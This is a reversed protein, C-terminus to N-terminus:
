SLAHNIIFWIFKNLFKKLWKRRSILYALFFRYFTIIKDKITNIQQMVFTMFYIQFTASWIRRISFFAFFCCYIRDIIILAKWYAAIPGNFRSFIPFFECLIDFINNRIYTSLLLNDMLFFCSCFNFLFPFLGAFARLTNCTLFLSYIKERHKLVCSIDYFGFWTQLVELGPLIANDQLLVVIQIILLFLKM